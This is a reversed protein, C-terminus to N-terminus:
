SSPPADANKKGVGFFGLIRKGWLKFAIWVGAIGGLLLQLIMSGTGPDIYGLILPATVGVDHFPFIM